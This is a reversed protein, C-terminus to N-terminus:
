KVEINKSSNEDIREKSNSYQSNRIVATSSKKYKKNTINIRQIQYTKKMHTRTESHEEIARRNYYECWKKGDM